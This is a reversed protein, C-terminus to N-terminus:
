VEDDCASVSGDNKDDSEDVNNDVATECNILKLEVNDDAGAAVVVM